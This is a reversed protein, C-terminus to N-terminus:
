KFIVTFTLPLKKTVSAQELQALLGTHWVKEFAGEVDAFATQFIDGKQWASRNQHVIYLLQNTTSDGKMYAGQRQSILSNELLHSLLRSHIIGEMIKAMTPLFSIPRYFLKSSKLGKQKWVRTIHTLKFTDSFFGVEFMNNLMRSM